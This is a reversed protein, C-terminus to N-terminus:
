PFINQEKRQAMQPWAATGIVDNIGHETIDWATKQAARKGARTSAFLGNNATLILCYRDGMLIVESKVPDMKDQVIAQLKEVPSLDPSHGPWIGKTWFVPFNDQYWRQNQAATHAPVGDRQSIAQSM